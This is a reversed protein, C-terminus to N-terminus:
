ALPKGRLAIEQAWWYFEHFGQSSLRFGWGSLHGRHAQLLDFLGLHGWEWLGSAFNYALMTKEVRARITQTEERSIGTEALRGITQETQEPTFETDLFPDLLLSWVDLFRQAPLKYHRATATLLEKQEASVFLIEGAKTRIEPPAGTVDLATIQEFGLCGSPSISAPSFPYDSFRIGDDNVTIKISGSFM